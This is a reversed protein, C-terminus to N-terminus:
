PEPGLCLCLPGFVFHSRDVAAVVSHAVVLNSPLVPALQYRPLSHVRGYTVAKLGFGLPSSGSILSLSTGEGKDVAQPRDLTSRCLLLSALLEPSLAACARLEVCPTVWGLFPCGRSLWLPVHVYNWM